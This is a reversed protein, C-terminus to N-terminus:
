DAQEGNGSRQKHCNKIFSLPDCNGAHKLKHHSGEVSVVGWGEKKLRSLIRRSNREIRTAM